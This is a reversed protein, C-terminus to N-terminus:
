ALMAEIKKREAQLEAPMRDGFEDLFAELSAIEAKWGDRDFGFLKAKAEEGLAVGELNVHEIKPLAGIPTHEADDADGVEACQGVVGFADGM